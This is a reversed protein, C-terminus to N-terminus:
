STPQLPKESSIRALEAEVLRDREELDRKAAAPSWRGKMAFVLLLFVVQGGMCVWWWTKWQNPSKKQAPIVVKEQNLLQELDSAGVSAIQADSVPKGAQIDAALPSFRLLAPAETGPPVLLLEDQLVQRLGPDSIAAIQASTVPKGDQIASAVPNFAQLALAESIGGLSAPIAGAATVANHSKPYAQL